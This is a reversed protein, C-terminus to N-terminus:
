TIQYSLRMCVKQGSISSYHESEEAETNTEGISFRIVEMPRASEVLRQELTPPM